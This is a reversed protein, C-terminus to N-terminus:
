PNAELAMAEATIEYSRVRKAHDFVQSVLILEDAQHQAAFAELGAKVTQASGVVARALVDDLIARSAPDLAEAYGEVPPPLLGPRGTRLNVFAQQTSTFLFRAEEDTEAATANVGLM